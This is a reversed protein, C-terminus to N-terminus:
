VGAFPKSKKKTIANGSPFYYGTEEVSSVASVTVSATDPLALAEPKVEHHKQLAFELDSIGNPVGVGNGCAVPVPPAPFGPLRTLAPYTTPGFPQYRFAPNSLASDLVSEPNRTAMSSADDFFDDSFGIPPPPAHLHKPLHTVPHSVTAMKTAPDDGRAQSDLGVTSRRKRQHNAFLAIAFVAVVAIAGISAYATLNEQSSPHTPTTSVTPAMPAAPSPSATPSVAATAVVPPLPKPNAQMQFGPQPWGPPPVFQRNPCGPFPPLQVQVCSTGPAVCPAPRGPGCGQDDCEPVTQDAYVCGYGFGPPPFPWAPEM